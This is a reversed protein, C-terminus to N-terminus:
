MKNMLCLEFYNNEDKWSESITLGASSALGRIMEGTFKYSNETHISDGKSFRIEGSGNLKFSQNCKSFLHMEVRSKVPNFFAKHEFNDEAIDSNFEKNIRRLLNLNFEATVGERDNYAANLIDINKVLDFGILLSDGKRMSASLKGLFEEAHPLDFNGISSGLFIILKPETFIESVAAISEEYEGIIGTVSLGEFDRLLDNGSQILIESVDIPVYNIHSSQKIFASLIYRTKVSSGSGLEVILMKGANSSAISSSHEKLISAETRTVYYEPTKCIKEFLESGANDYFYKPQLMKPVSTLGEIVDQAFTKKTNGNEVTYLTFRDNINKKSYKVSM